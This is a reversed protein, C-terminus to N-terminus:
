QPSSQELVSVEDGLDKIKLQSPGGPNWNEMDGYSHFTEVVDFGDSVYGIPSEHVAKGLHSKEAYTIFMHGTRTDPGSGAFSVIGKKFPVRELPDDKIPKKWGDWDTLHKNKEPQQPQGFQVLLDPLVRYFYQGDFYHHVFLEYARQYGVPAWDKEFTFQFPGKTTKCNVKFSGDPALADPM